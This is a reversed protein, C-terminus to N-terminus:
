RNAASAVKLFLEEYADVMREATFRQEVDARCDARRLGGVSEVAAVAGEVDDVLFGTVGDVVIEPLSGLPHAIVPTGTALAEVVSL